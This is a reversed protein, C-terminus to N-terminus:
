VLNKIKECIMEVQEDSLEPYIPLSIIEKVIKETIPLSVKEKFMKKVITQMHCPKPYHVGLYIEEKKLEEIIRERKKSNVRIVYLHYCHEANKEESPLIVKSDKLLQNYLLAIERRRKTFYGLRELQKIGIACHIESLRYNNGLIISDYRKNPNEGHNILMQSIENIKNENTIIMGGEGCVTLNKTPYFSFCGIDGITGVHKGNYKANHAQACDEILYLKNKECIEKIAGLNVPNGYIHVAIIAKTKKTLAKKIKKPDITYTEECIDVFIPKAGIRLVPEITPMTTHSPVIVEDGKKIGLSQLAVEIAVTGNAVAIAHKSGTFESFKKEFEKIKEGNTFIGSSFVESVAEILSDDVFVKSTYIKKTDRKKIRKKEFNLSIKEVEKKIEYLDKKVAQFSKKIRKDNM